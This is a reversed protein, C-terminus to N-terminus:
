ARIGACHAVGQGWVSLTWSFPHWSHPLYEQSEIQDWSRECHVIRTRWAWLDGPFLFGASSDPLDAWFNDCSAAMGDSQIAGWVRLASTPLFQCKERPHSEESCIKAQLASLGWVFQLTSHWVEGKPSDGNARASIAWCPAQGSGQLHGDREKTGDLSVFSSFFSNLSLIFAFLFFCGGVRFGLRGSISSFLGSVRPAFLLRKWFTFGQTEVWFGLEFGDWFCTWAKLWALFWGLIAELLLSTFPRCARSSSIHSIHSILRDVAQEVTLPRPWRNIKGFKRANEQRTIRWRGKKTSIGLKKIDLAVLIKIKPWFKVEKRHNNRYSAYSIFKACDYPINLLLILLFEDLLWKIM